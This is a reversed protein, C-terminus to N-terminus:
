RIYKMKNVFQVKDAENRLDKSHDSISNCHVKWINEIAAQWNGIAAMKKINTRFTEQKKRIEHNM